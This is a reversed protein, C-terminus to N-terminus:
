NNEEDSDSVEEGRARKMKKEKQKKKKEQRSLERKEEKIKHTNGLADVYETDRKMEIKAAELNAASQGTIVVQGGGVTWMESCVTKVFESSHSIVVVGGGFDALAASLAGLSERDLYNTPQLYLSVFLKLHNPICHFICRTRSICVDCTTTSSFSVTM